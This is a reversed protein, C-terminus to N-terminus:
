RGKGMRCSNKREYERVDNAVIEVHNTRPRCDAILRCHGVRLSYQLFVADIWWVDEHFGRFGTVRTQAADLIQDYAAIAECDVRSRLLRSLQAITRQYQGGEDFTLRFFDCGHM